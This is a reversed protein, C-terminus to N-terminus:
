TIYSNFHCCGLLTRPEGVISVLLPEPPNLLSSLKLSLSERLFSFPEGDMVKEDAMRSEHGGVLERRKWWV